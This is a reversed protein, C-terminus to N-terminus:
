LSNLVEKVLNDFRSTWEHTHNQQQTAVMRLPPPVDRDSLAPMDQYYSRPFRFDWWESPLPLMPLNLKEAQTLFSQELIKRSELIGKSFDACDRASQSTMEDFVTGMDLMDGNSKVVSVDIAVGRPHAGTGPKSFLVNPGSLWQPNKKIIDTSMAIEEADTTRLGDNLILTYGHHDHLDRAVSVVIRALDKHLSLRADKRYLATKFINEHHTADAYVLDIELPENNGFLDMPVLLRSHGTDDM